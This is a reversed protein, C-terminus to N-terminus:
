RSGDGVRWRWSGWKMGNARDGWKGQWHRSWGGGGGLAGYRTRKQVTQSSGKDVVSLRWGDGGCPLCQVGHSKWKHRKRWGPWIREGLLPPSLPPQHTSPPLPETNLPPTNSTLVTGWVSPISFGPFIPTVPNQPSGLMGREKEKQSVRVLSWNLCDLIQNGRSLRMWGLWLKRPAYTEWVRGKMVIAPAPCEINWM